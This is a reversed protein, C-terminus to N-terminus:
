CTSSRAAGSLAQQGGLPQQLRRGYLARVLPSLLLRTITGEYRHRAYAARSSTPRTRSCPGRWGRSGTPRRGLGRRGGAARLARARLRQAIAFTARLAAGRGPVGHFPVAVREGAPRRTRRGRDGAARRGGARRPHRRVLGRRRRDARGDPAPSTAPRARRRGGRARADLTEANNYTLLGVAVDCRGCTARDLSSRSRCSPRLAM